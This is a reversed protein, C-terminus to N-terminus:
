RREEIITHSLPKGQVQIPARDGQPTYTESTKIEALLGSELLQQKFREEASLSNSRINDPPIPRIEVIIGDDIHVDDPLMVVNDKVKGYYVTM